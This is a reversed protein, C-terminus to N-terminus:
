IENGRLHRDEHSLWSELQPLLSADRIAVVRKAVEFQQWFIGTNRFEELLRAASQRQQARGRGPVATLLILPLGLLAIITRFRNGRTQPRPLPVLRMHRLTGGTSRPFCIRVLNGNVETNCDRSSTHPVSPRGHRILKGDMNKQQPKDYRQDQSSQDARFAGPVM